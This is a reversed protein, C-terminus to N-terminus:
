VDSLCECLRHTVGGATSFSCVTFRLGFNRCVGVMLRMSWKVTYVYLGSQLSIAGAGAYRVSTLMEDILKMSNFADFVGRSLSM